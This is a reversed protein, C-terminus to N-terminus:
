AGADRKHFRRQTRYQELAQDQETADDDLIIPQKELIIPQKKSPVRDAFRENPQTAEEPM